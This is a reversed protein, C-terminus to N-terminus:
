TEWGISTKTKRSPSFFGPWGLVPVHYKDCILSTRVSKPMETLKFQKMFSAHVFDAPFTLSKALNLPFFFYIKFIFCGTWLFIRETELPFKYYLMLMCTCLKKRWNELWGVLSNYCGQGSQQISSIHISGTHPSLYPLVFFKSRVLGLFVFSVCWVVGM